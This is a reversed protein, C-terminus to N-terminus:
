FGNRLYHFTTELYEEFPTDGEGDAGSQGPLLVNLTGDVVPLMAGYVAGILLHIYVEPYRGPTLEWLSEQADALLSRFVSLIYPELTSHKKSLAVVERMKLLLSATFQTRMTEYLMDLLPTEKPMSALLQEAEDHQSGALSIAATAVAEEKCSFYNAFTRRSYGARQVVDDVVFGDLGREVALEFAANALAYATAEKKLDRLSTKNM